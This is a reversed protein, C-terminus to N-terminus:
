PLLQPHLCFYEYANDRFVTDSLGFLHAEDRINVPLSTFLDKLEACTRTKGDIEFTVDSFSLWEDGDFLEDLSRMDVTTGLKKM